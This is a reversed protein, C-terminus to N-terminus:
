LSSLLPLAQKMKSDPTPVSDPVPIEYIEIKGKKENFVALTRGDSSLAHAIGENYTGTHLLKQGTNVDYVVIWSANGRDWGRAKFASITAVPVNRAPVTIAVGLAPIRRDAPEEYVFVPNGTEGNKVTFWFPNRARSDLVMFSGDYLFKEGRPVDMKLFFDSYEFGSYSYSKYEPFGLAATGVIQAPRVRVTACASVSLLMMLLILKKLLM